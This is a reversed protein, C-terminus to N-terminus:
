APGLIWSMARRVPIGPGSLNGKLYFIMDHETLLRSCKGKCAAQNQVDQPDGVGEDGIAPSSEYPFVRHSHHDIGIHSFPGFLGEIWTRIAPGGRYFTGNGNYFTSDLAYWDPYMTSLNINQIDNTYKEYLSLTPNERTEDTFADTHTLIPANTFTDTIPISPLLQSATSHAYRLVAGATIFSKLPHM